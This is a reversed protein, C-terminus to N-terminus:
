HKWLAEENRPKSTAQARAVSAATPKLLSAPVGASPSTGAASKRTSAGGSSSSRRPPPTGADSGGHSNPAARAGWPKKGPTAKAGAAGAPSPAAALVAAAAGAAPTPKISTGTITLDPTSRGPEGQMSDGLPESPKEPTVGAPEPTPSMRIQLM